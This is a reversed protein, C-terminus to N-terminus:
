DSEGGEAVWGGADEGAKLKAQDGVRTIAQGTRTARDGRIKAWRGIPLAGDDRGLMQHWAVELADVDRLDEATLARGLYLLRRAATDALVGTFRAVRAHPSRPLRYSAGQYCAAVLLLDTNLDPFLDDISALALGKTAWHPPGSFEPGPSVLLLDESGHAEILVRSRKLSAAARARDLSGPTSDIVVVDTGGHVELAGRVSDQADWASRENGAKTTREADPIFILLTPAPEATM